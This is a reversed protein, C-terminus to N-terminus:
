HASFIPCIDFTMIRWEYYMYLTHCTCQVSYSLIVYNIVHEQFDSLLTNSLFSVWFKCLLLREFRQASDRDLAECSCRSESPPVSLEYEACENSWQVGEGCIPALTWSFLFSRMKTLQNTISLVFMWIKVMWQKCM